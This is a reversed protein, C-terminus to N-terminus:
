EGRWIKVRAGNKPGFQRSNCRTPMFNKGYCLRMETLWGRGNIKLGIHEPKWYRNTAAFAKRIDGASLGNRRSLANFDPWRLSGWLTRTVKFYTEPASVMCSGHKAWERALLSASPTMCINRRAEAPSVLKRTPCNQPWSSANGEPWLGHVIFRFKGQKGSCQRTHSRDNGRTRCFEPSWSLSLTYGTVPMQRRAGDQSVRPVSVAGQSIRCQSAQALVPSTACLAILGAAVGSIIRTHISM